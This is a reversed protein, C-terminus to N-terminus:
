IKLLRECDHESGIYDYSLESANNPEYNPGQVFIVQSAAEPWPEENSEIGEGHRPGDALLSGRGCQHHEEESAKFRPEIQDIVSRETAKDLWAQHRGENGHEKFNTNSGIPCPIFEKGHRKLLVHNLM